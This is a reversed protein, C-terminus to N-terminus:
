YSPFSVQLFNWQGVAVQEVGILFGPSHQASQGPLRFIVSIDRPFEFMDYFILAFIITQPDCICLFLRIM